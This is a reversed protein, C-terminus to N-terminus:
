GITLMKTWFCYRYHELVAKKLKKKAQQYEDPDLRTPQAIGLTDSDKAVTATANSDSRQNEDEEADIYDRGKGNSSGFEVETTESDRNSRKPNV